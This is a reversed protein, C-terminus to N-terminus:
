NKGRALHFRRAQEWSAVASFFIARAGPGICARLVARGPRRGAVVRSAAPRTSGPGTTAVRRAEHLRRGGGSGVSRVDRRSSGGVPHRAKAGM